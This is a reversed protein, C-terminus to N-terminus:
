AVALLAAVVDPDFHTGACRALEARAEEVTRRKRYARDTTMANFADCACVIRAEVPIATAAIGDPYGDGDWREHCSRVIGGIEALLGGVRELMRQGEVTHQKMVAWEAESLPGPKNIIENPVRIKGIDHLLAALEVRRQSRSDLGLRDAVALALSVVDRSHSGTYSDNAEIVDGLLFATGRYASSLELAADVRAKRERGFVALLGLLPLLLVIAGDVEVAAIAALLGVPTLALDVAYARAMYPLQPRIPTGRAIRDCAAASTVDFLWQAPLVVALPLLARLDPEPEGLAAIALAGGISFWSNALRLFVREADVRRDRVLWAGVFGLAVTVPVLNAPLAFLMPVFVLQTPVAWGTSIEFTVRSALAYAAALGLIEAASASRSSEVLEAVAAAAVVFASGFAIVTLLRRRGLRAARSARSQEILEAVAPDVHTAAATM